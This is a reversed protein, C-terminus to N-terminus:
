DAAVGQASWRAQGKSTRSKLVGRVQRRPGIFLGIIEGIRSRPSAHNVIGLDM